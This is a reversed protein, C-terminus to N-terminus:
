PEPDPPELCGGYAPTGPFGGSTLVHCSANVCALSDDIYNPRLLFVATLGEKLSVSRVEHANNRVIYVNRSFLAVM